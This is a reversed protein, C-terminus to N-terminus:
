EEYFLSTWLSGGGSFHSVHQIMANPHSQLWKEIDEKISQPKSSKIVDIKIM